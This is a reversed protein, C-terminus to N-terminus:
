RFPGNGPRAAARKYSLAYDLMTGRGDQASTSLYSPTLAQSADLERYLNDNTRALDRRTAILTSSLTSRAGLKYDATANLNHSRPTFAGSVDSALYPVLGSALGRRTSFGSIARDDRMFGYTASLTLPGGQYGVNGSANM